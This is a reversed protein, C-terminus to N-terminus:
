NKILSYKVVPKCCEVFKVILELVDRDVHDGWWDEPHDAFKAYFAM